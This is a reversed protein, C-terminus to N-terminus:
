EKKSISFYSNSDEDGKENSNEYENGHLEGKEQKRISSKMELWESVDVVFETLDIAIVILNMKSKREYVPEKEKRSFPLERLRIRKTRKKNKKKEKRKKKM